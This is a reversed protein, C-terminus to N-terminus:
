AGGESTRLNTLAKLLRMTAEYDLRAGEYRVEYLGQLNSPLTVGNEVLLIFRRKYLAMAAGIEILVNSNLIRHKNGQADLLEQESGVHIIGGSCTRMDALVKDPVPQSLSEREIAVVPVFKGFTLLEKVQNVIELNKGHTIFIRDSAAPDVKAASAPPVPNLELHPREQSLTPETLSETSAAGGGAEIGDLEVYDADKIARIFGVARANATILQYSRECVESPVGMTELVNKAIALPPLKSRNYKTLFERNVRPRLVAERRAKVDDGETTPALIRRGLDIVSILNSNAGGDTLGYAIAAGCAARFSWSNPQYNLAQAVAIPTSPQKGYNDFIAKPVILADELPMTPVDEQKLYKRKPPNQKTKRDGPGKRPDIAKKAKSGNTTAQAPTSEAPVSQM